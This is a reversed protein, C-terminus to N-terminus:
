ASVEQEQRHESYKERGSKGGRKRWCQALRALSLIQPRVQKRTLVAEDRLRSVDQAQPVVADKFSYRLMGEYLIRLTHGSDQPLLKMAARRGAFTRAALVTPLTPIVSEGIQQRVM